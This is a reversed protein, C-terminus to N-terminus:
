SPSSSAPSRPQTRATSPARRGRAARTRTPGSPAEPLHTHSHRPGRPGGPSPRGSGAGGMRACARRRQAGEAAAWVGGGVCPGRKHQEHQQGAEVATGVGPDVGGEAAADGRLQPAQEAAGPPAGRGAEPGLLLGAGGGAGERGPVGRGSFGPAAQRGPAGPLETAQRPRAQSGSPSPARQSHAGLNHPARCAAGQRRARPPAAPTHQLSRPRCMAKLGVPAQGALSISAEKRWGELGGRGERRVRERM